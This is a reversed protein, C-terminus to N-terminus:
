QTCIIVNYFLYKIIFMIFPVEVFKPLIFYNTLKVFIILPGKVVKPFIIYITWNELLM